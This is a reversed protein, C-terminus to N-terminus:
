SGQAAKPVARLSRVEPHDLLAARSRVGLKTAARAVLVRVTVASIGLAYATEKTSQGIALYALVQRERDSLSALGSVLPQGVRAVVYRAGDREFSQIITWRTSALSHARGHDNPAGVATGLARERVRAIDIPLARM